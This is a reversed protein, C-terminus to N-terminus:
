PSDSEDDEERNPSRSGAPFIASLSKLRNNSGAAIRWASLPHLEWGSFNHFRQTLHGPDWYVFGQVDIKTGPAPLLAPAVGAKKWTGDIEAHVAKLYPNTIEPRSPDALTGTYDGDSRVHGWDRGVVLGDIQVFTPEKEVFCPPNLLHRQADGALHPQFAGGGELAGGSSGAREGIVVPLTAITAQCSVHPNWSTLSPSVSAFRAIVRRARTMRLTCAAQGSCAGGWAVFEAGKLQRVTLRITAGRRYSLVCRRKCIRAGPSVRITGLQAPVVVVTLRRTPHKSYTAGTAGLVVLAIIVFGLWRTSALQRVSRPVRTNDEGTATM